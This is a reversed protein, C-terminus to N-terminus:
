KATGVDIKPKEATYTETEDVGNKGYSCRRVIYGNAIKRISVTEDPGSPAAVTKMGSAKSSRKRSSAKTVTIGNKM